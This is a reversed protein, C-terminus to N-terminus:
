RGRVTLQLFTTILLFTASTFIVLTTGNSDLIGMKLVKDFGSFLLLLIAIINIYILTRGM